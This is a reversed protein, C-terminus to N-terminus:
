TWRALSRLFGRTILTHIRLQTMEYLWTGFRALWPHYDRVEARVSVLEREPAQPDTGRRRVTIRFYGRDRGERAVLLGRRIPWTVESYDPGRVYQPAGFTFLRFMPVLLAVARENPSRTVRIFRLSIRSLYRWYAHEILELDDAGSAPLSV